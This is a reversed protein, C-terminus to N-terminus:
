PTPPQAPPDLQLDRPLAGLAVCLTATAPRDAIDGEGVMYRLERRSLAEPVELRAMRYARGAQILKVAHLVLVRGGDSIAGHTAVGVFPEGREVGTFRIPGDEEPIAIRHREASTDAATDMTGAPAAVVLRGQRLPIWARLVQFRLQGLDAGLQRVRHASAVVPEAEGARWLHLLGGVVGPEPLPPPDSCGLLMWCGLLLGWAVMRGSRCAARSAM